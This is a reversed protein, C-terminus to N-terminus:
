FMSRGSETGGLPEERHLRGPVGRFSAPFQFRENFYNEVVPTWGFGSVTRTDFAPLSRSREGFISRSITLLDM